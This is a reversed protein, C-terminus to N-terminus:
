DKNSTYAKVSGIRKYDFPGMGYKLTHATFSHRLANCNVNKNIRAKHAALKIARQLGDESVHNDYTAKNPFLWKTQSPTYIAQLRDILDTIPEKLAEPLAVTRDKLTISNNNISIDEIRLCVCEMLKMGTGYLLRAMLGYMGDIFALMRQAEDRTLIVPNPQQRKMRLPTALPRIDQGIVKYLFVIASLAQNHTSPVDITSLFSKIEAAGMIHPSRNGHFEIYRKIWLEYAAKTSKSLGSYAMELADALTDKSLCSEFEPM